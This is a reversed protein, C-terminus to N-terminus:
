AGFAMFRISKDAVEVFFWEGMFFIGSEIRGFVRPKARNISSAHVTSVIWSSFRSMIKNTLTSWVLLLYLHSM